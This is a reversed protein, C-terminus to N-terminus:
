WVLQVKCFTAGHHRRRRLRQETVLHFAFFDLLRSLLLLVVAIREKM